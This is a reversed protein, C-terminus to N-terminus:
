IWALSMWDYVNAYESPIVLMYNPHQWVYHTTNDIRESRLIEDRPRSTLPVMASRLRSITARLASESKGVFVDEMLRNSTTRGSLMLYTLVEAQRDQVTKEGHVGELALTDGHFRAVLGDTKRLLERRMENLDEDHRSFRRHNHVVLYPAVLDTSM